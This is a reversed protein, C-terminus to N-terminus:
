VANLFYLREAEIAVVLPASLETLPVITTKTKRQDVWYLHTESDKQVSVFISWLPWAPIKNHLRISLRVCLEDLYQHHQLLQRVNM